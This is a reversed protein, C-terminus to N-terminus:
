CQRATHRPEHAPLCLAVRGVALEVFFGPHESERSRRCVLALGSILLNEIANEGFRFCPHMARFESEVGCKVKLCVSCFM